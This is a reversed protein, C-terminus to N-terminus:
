QFTALIDAGAHRMKEGLRQGVDFAQDVKGQLSDTIERQGDVTLVQGTIHLMDGQISALAGIPTRCSGDLVALFSREALLMYASPVHHIKKLLAAIRGDDTRAEIGVIGQGVAPLCVHFPLVEVSPALTDTDFGLRNLGAQALLTADVVGNKLKTLRSQVNGRFTVVQLDPRNAQIQAQRRLSATGVVAGRPLGSLGGDHRSLLVDAPNERPLVAGIHLGDPLETPLDKSSHVALDIEGKQLAVEIEQTFLGKGGVEGLARDLIRDGETTFVELTVHDPSLNPHAALLAERVSTAQALALPSGRTGIRISAQQTDSLAPTTIQTKM